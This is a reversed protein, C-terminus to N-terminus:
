EQEHWQSWRQEFGEELLRWFVTVCLGPPVIGRRPVWVEVNQKPPGVIHTPFMEGALAIANFTVTQEEQLGTTIGLGSVTPKELNTSLGYICWWKSICMLVQHKYLEVVGSEGQDDLLVHLDNGERIRALEARLEEPNM